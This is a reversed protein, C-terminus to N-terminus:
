RGRGGPGRRGGDWQASQEFRHGPSRGGTTGAAHQGTRHFALVARYQSLMFSVSRRTNSVMRLIETKFEAEVAQHTLRYDMLAMVVLPTLTVVTTFIVILKWKRRFSYHEGSSGAAADRHDWFRPKIKALNLM